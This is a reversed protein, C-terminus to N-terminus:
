SGDCPWCRALQSAKPHVEHSYRHANMFQFVTSPPLNFTRYLDANCGISLLSPPVSFVDTELCFLKSTSLKWALKIMKDDFSTWFYM